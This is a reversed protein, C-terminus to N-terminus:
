AARVPRGKRTMARLAGPLGALSMEWPQPIALFMLASGLLGVNGMFARLDAIQALGTEAWFNHMILTVPVIFLVFAGVGITPHFGTILSAGALLLLLSAVIVWMHPHAIGKSATYGAKADLDILNTIGAALYMGGVLVRGVLFLFLQRKITAM